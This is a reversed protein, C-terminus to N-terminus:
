GTLGDEDQVKTRKRYEGPTQGTRRKFVRTFHSQDCFGLEDAVDSLPRGQDLLEEARRIRRDLVFEWPPMGEAERFVRTFHPRTLDVERAIRSVDIGRGLNREIFDKAAPIVSADGSIWFAPSVIIIRRPVRTPTRM